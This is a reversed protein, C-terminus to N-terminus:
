QCGRDQEGYEGPPTREDFLNEKGSCGKQCTRKKGYEPLDILGSGICVM